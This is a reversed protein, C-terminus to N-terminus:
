PEYHMPSAGIGSRLRAHWDGPIGQRLRGSVQIDM